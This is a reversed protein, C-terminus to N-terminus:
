RTMTIPKAFKGRAAIEIIIYHADVRITVNLCLTYGNCINYSTPIKVVIYM